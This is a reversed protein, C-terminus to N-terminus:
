GIDAGLAGHPLVARRTCAYVCRTPDKDSPHSLLDSGEHGRESSSARNVTISSWATSLPTSRESGDLWDM